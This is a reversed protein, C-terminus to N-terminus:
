SPHDATKAGADRIAQSLADLAVAVERAFAEDPPGAQFYRAVMLPISSAEVVFGPAGPSRRELWDSLVALEIQEAELEAAKIRNRLRETAPSPAPSPGAKLRTRVRRLAQVIDHRWDRV